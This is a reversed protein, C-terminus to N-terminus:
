GHQLIERSVGGDHDVSMSRREPLQALARVEAFFDALAAPSVVEEGDQVFLM